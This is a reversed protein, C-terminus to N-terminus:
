LAFAQDLVARALGLQRGIFATDLNAYHRGTPNHQRHWQQVVVSTILRASILAGLLSFEAAQLPV